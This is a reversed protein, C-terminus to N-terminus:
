MKETKTPESSEEKLLLDIETDGKCRNHDTTCSIFDWIYSSNASDPYLSLVFAWSGFAFGFNCILICLRAYSFDVIIVIVYYVFSLGM